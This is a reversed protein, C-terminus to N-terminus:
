FAPPETAIGTGPLVSSLNKSQADRGSISVASRRSLILRRSAESLIVVWVHAGQVVVAIGVLIPMGAFAFLTM